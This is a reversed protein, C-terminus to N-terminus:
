YGKRIKEIKNKYNVIQVKLSKAEASEPDTIAHYQDIQNNCENIMAVFQSDDGSNVKLKSLDTIKKM